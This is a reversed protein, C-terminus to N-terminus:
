LSLFKLLNRFNSLAFLFFREVSIWWNDVSKPVSHTSFLSFESTKFAPQYCHTLNFRTNHCVENIFDMARCKM